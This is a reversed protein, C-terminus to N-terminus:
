LLLKNPKQKKINSRGSFCFVTFLKSRFVSNVRQSTQNEWTNIERHWLTHKPELFEHELLVTVETQVPINELHSMDFQLISPDDRTRRWPGSRWSNPHFRWPYSVITAQCPAVVWTLPPPVACHLPMINGKMNSSPPIFSCPFDCYYLKKFGKDPLGKPLLFTNLLWAFLSLM